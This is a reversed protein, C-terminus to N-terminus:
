AAPFGININSHYHSIYLMTCSVTVSECNILFPPMANTPLTQKNALAHLMIRGIARTYTKAQEKAEKVINEKDETEYCKKAAIKIDHELKEDTTVMVGSPTDEFLNV